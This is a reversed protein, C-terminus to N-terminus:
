DDHFTYDKLTIAQVLGELTYEQAEVDVRGLLKRCSASTQPGISAICVGELLSDLTADKGLATTLLQYFNQVTKASAFTIIDVKRQQLAALAVPSIEAPCGSQYAAVEVVEAGQITLDKVLIDRGGTEV